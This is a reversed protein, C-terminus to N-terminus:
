PPTFTERAKIPEPDDLRLKIGHTYDALAQQNEGLGQHIAARSNYVAANEVGLTIARNYDELAKGNDKLKVYVDGRLQFSEGNNPELHVSANADELAHTYDALNYEARARHFFYMGTRADNEIAETFSREAEKWQSAQEHRLGEQYAKQAQKPSTAASASLATLWLLLLFSCRHM